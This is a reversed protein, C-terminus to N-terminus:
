PVFNVTTWSLRGRGSGSYPTHQLVVCHTAMDTLKVCQASCLLCTFPYGRDINIKQIFKVSNLPHRSPQLVDYQTNYSLIRSTFQTDLPMSHTFFYLTSM